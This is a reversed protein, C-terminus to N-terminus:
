SGSCGVHAAANSTCTSHSWLVAITLILKLHVNLLPAIILFDFYCIKIVNIAIHIYLKTIMYADFQGLCSVKTVTQMSMITVWIVVVTHPLM